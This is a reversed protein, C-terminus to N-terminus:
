AVAELTRLAASAGATSSPSTVTPTPAISLPLSQPLTLITVKPKRRRLSGVLLNSGNTAYRACYLAVVVAWIVPLGGGAQLSLYLGTGVGLCSLAQSFMLYRSKNMAMLIGDLCMTSPCVLMSAFALPAVSKMIGWLRPDGAVMGPAFATMGGCICGLLMGFVGAIKLLLGILRQSGKGHGWHTIEETLFVQAAQQLPFSCFCLVSWVAWVAQHAACSTVTLQTAAASILMFCSNNLLSFVSLNASTNRFDKWWQSSPMQCTLRVKRGKGYGLTILLMLGAWIGATTAYASGMLGMGCVNVLFIDGLVNFAVAAGIAKLPTSTDKQALLGSQLVMTMLTAPLSLARVRAYGAAVGVLQSLAGTAGIITHPFCFILGGLLLGSGLAVQMAGCITLEAAHTNGKSMAETTKMTTVACLFFFAYTIFNFITLNPGLAALELTSAGQGLCLVDVLGMIPDALVTSMAPIM